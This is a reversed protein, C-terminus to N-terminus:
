KCYLGEPVDNTSVFPGQKTSLWQLSPRCSLKASRTCPPVAAAVTRTIRGVSLSYPQGGRLTVSGCFARFIPLSCLFCVRLLVEAGAHLPSVLLGNPKWNSRLALMCPLSDTHETCRLLLLASPRRIAATPVSGTGKWSACTSIM